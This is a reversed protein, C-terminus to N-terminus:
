RTTRGPAPSNAASSALLRKSLRRLLLSRAVFRLGAPGRLLPVVNEAALAYCLTDERARVEWGTPLGSFM